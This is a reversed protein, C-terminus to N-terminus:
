TTTWLYSLRGRKGVRKTGCPKLKGDKNLRQATVEVTRPPIPLAYQLEKITMPRISLESLIAAACTM